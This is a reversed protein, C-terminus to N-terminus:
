CYFTNPLERRRSAIAVLGAFGASFILLSGPEPVAKKDKVFFASSSSNHLDYTNFLGSIYSANDDGSAYTPYLSTDSESSTWGNVGTKDTHVHAVNSSLVTDALTQLAPQGYDSINDIGSPGNGYPLAMANGAMLSVGFM